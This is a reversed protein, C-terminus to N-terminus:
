SAPVHQSQNQQTPQSKACILAAISSILILYATAKGGSRCFEGVAEPGKRAADLADPLNDNLASRVSSVAAPDNAALKTQLQQLQTLEQNLEAVRAPNEGSKELSALEDRRQSIAREALEADSLKTEGLMIGSETIRLEPAGDIGTQLLTGQGATKSALEPSVTPSEPMRQLARVRDSLQRLSIATGSVPQDAPMLQSKLEAFQILTERAADQASLGPALRIEYTLDSLRLKAGTQTVVVDSEPNNPNLILNKIQIEAGSRDRLVLGSQQGPTACVIRTQDLARQFRASQTGQGWEFENTLVMKGADSLQQSFEPSQPDTNSTIFDLYAKIQQDTLGVSVSDSSDFQNPNGTSEPKSQREGPTTSTGRKTDGATSGGDTEGPKAGGGGGEDNGNDPKAGSSGHDQDEGGRSGLFVEYDQVLKSGGSADDMKLFFQGTGKKRFYQHTEGHLYIEVQQYDSNPLGLQEAESRTLPVVNRELEEGRGGQMLISSGDIEGIKVAGLENEAAAWSKKAPLAIPQDTKGGGSTTDAAIPKKTSGVLQHGPYTAPQIDAVKIGAITVVDNSNLVARRHGDIRENNVYIAVSDSGDLLLMGNDLYRLKPPDNGPWTADEKGTLQARTLHGSSDITLGEGRGLPMPKQGVYVGQAPLIAQELSFFKSGGISIQDESSIPVWDESSTVHMETADSRKIWAGKEEGGPLMRIFANGHDDVRLVAHSDALEAGGVNLDGRRGIVVEHDPGLAAGYNSNVKIIRGNPHVNFDSTRYETPLQAPTLTIEGAGKTGPTGVQIKDQPKLYHKVGPELAQGNILIPGESAVLKDSRAVRQGDIVYVGKEDFGSRLQSATRHWFRGLLTDGNLPTDTTRYRPNGNSAPIDIKFAYQSAPQQEVAHFNSGGLSFQEGSKIEFAVTSKGPHFARIEGDAAKIYVSGNENLGSLTVKGSKDISVRAQQEGAGGVTDGDKVAKGDIFTVAAPETSDRNILDRQRALRDRLPASYKWGAYVGLAGLVLVGIEKLGDHSGPQVKFDAAGPAATTPGNKGADKLAANVQAIEATIKQFQEANIEIEKSKTFGTIPESAVVTITGSGDDNKKLNLFQVDATVWPLPIHYKNKGPDVEVHIGSINNITISGNSESELTGRVQSDITIKRCGTSADFTLQLASPREALLYILGDDDPHMSVRDFAGASLLRSIDPGLRDFDKAGYSVDHAPVSIQLGSDQPPAGPRTASATGESGLVTKAAVSNDGFLGAQRLTEATSAADGNSRGEAPAHPYTINELFSAMALYFARCLWPDSVHPPFSRNKRMM